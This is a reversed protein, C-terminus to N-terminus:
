HFTQAAVAKFCDKEEETEELGYYIKATWEDGHRIIELADYEGQEKSVKYVEEILASYDNTVMKLIITKDDEMRKEGEV